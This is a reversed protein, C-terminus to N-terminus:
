WETCSSMKYQQGEQDNLRTIKGLNRKLLSYDILNAGQSNKSGFDKMLTISSIACPFM